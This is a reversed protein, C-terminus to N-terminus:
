RYKVENTESHGCVACEFTRIDYDPKGSPEIRALLMVKQCTPCAPKSINNLYETAPQTLSMPQEVNKLWRGRHHILM